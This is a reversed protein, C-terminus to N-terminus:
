TMHHSTIHHPASPSSLFSHHFSHHALAGACCEFPFIYINHIYHVFLRGPMMCIHEILQEESVYENYDSVTHTQFEKFAAGIKATVTMTGPEASTGNAAARAAEAEARKKKRSKKTHNGKLLRTTSSEHQALLAQLRRDATTDKYTNFKPDTEFSNKWLKEDFSPLLILLHFSSLYCSLSSLHLSHTLSHTFSSVRRVQLDFIKGNWSPTPNSCQSNVVMGVEPFVRYALFISSIVSLCCFLTVGAPLVFGIWWTSHRHMCLITKIRDFFSQVTM